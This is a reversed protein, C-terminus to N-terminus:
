SSLRFNREMSYFGIDILLSFQGELKQTPEQRSRCLLALNNSNQTAGKQSRLHQSVQMLM